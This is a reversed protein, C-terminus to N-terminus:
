SITCHYMVQRVHIPGWNSQRSWLFVFCIFSVFSNWLRINQSILFKSEFGKGTDRGWKMHQLSLLEVESLPSSSMVQQIFDLTVQL